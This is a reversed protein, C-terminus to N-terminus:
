KPRTIEINPRHSMADIAEQFKQGYHKGRDRPKGAITTLTHDPVKPFEAAARQPIQLGSALTGCGALKLFTRRNCPNNM